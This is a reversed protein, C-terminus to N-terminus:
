SAQKMAGRMRTAPSETCRAQICIGACAQDQQPATPGCHQSQCRKNQKRWTSQSPSARSEASMLLEPSDRANPSPPPKTWRHDAWAAGRTFKNEVGVSMGSSGARGGATLRRSPSENAATGWNGAPSSSGSDAYSGVAVSLTPMAGRM